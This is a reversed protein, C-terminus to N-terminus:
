RGQFLLKPEVEAEDRAVGSRNTGGHGRKM